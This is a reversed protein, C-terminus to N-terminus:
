ISSRLSSFLFPDHSCPRPARQRPSHLPAQPVTLHWFSASWSETSTNHETPKSRLLALVLGGVVGPACFESYVSVTDTAHPFLLVTRLKLCGHMSTGFLNVVIDLSHQAHADRSLHVRPTKTCSFNSTASGRVSRPPHEINPPSPRTVQFALVGLGSARTLAVQRAAGPAVRRLDRLRLHASASQM